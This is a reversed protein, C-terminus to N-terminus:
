ARRAQIAMWALLALRQLQRLLTRHDLLVQCRVQYWRAMPLLVAVLLRRLLLLDTPFNLCQCSPHLEMAFRMPFNTQFDSELQRLREIPRPVLLAAPHVTAVLQHSPHARKLYSPCHVLHDPYNPDVLRHDLRFSPDAQQRYYDVLMPHSCPNTAIAFEEFRHVVPSAQPVVVLRILSELQLM